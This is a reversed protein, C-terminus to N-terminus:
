ATLFDQFPAPLPAILGLKELPSRFHRCQGNPFPPVWRLVEQVIAFIYPLEPRDSLSPLRDGVARDLEERAKAQVEPYLSM